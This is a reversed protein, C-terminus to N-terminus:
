LRLFDRTSSPALAKTILCKANAATCSLNQGTQPPKQATAALLFENNAGCPGRLRLRGLGIIRKLYVFLMEVKKRLKSSIKYQRIKRITCAVDRADEKEERTIKRADAKSCCKPKSPSIRHSTPDVLWGLMPSSRYATVATLRAPDLDFKGKVRGVLTDTSGVVAQRIYRTVEVDIRAPDCEDKPASYQRNADAEILSADVALRQGSVLGETISRAVTTESLYHLLESERFRGHRYKSFRSHDPIRDNLGLCYFWRYATCSKAFKGIKFSSMGRRDLLMAFEDEPAEM